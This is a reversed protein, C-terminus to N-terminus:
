DKDDVVQQNEKTMINFWSTPNMHIEEACLAAICPDHGQDSIKIILFVNGGISGNGQGIRLDGPKM